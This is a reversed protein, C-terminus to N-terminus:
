ACCPQSHGLPQQHNLDHESGGLNIATFTERLEEESISSISKEIENWLERLEPVSHIIELAFRHSQLREVDSSSIKM